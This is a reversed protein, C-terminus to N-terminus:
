LWIIEDVGDGVVSKHVPSIKLCKKNGGNQYLLHGQGTSQRLNQNINTTIAVTVLWFTSLGFRRCVSVEVFRFMWLPFRRCVLVDVFWFTSLGFRRCVSVDVFWFTSLDFRRCVSVDVFWFTWLGFRRCVSVDVFSFASLGFRRCVLVDVSSFKLMIRVICQMYYIILVWTRILGNFNYAHTLFEVGCGPVVWKVM